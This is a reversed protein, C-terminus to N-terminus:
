VALFVMVAVKSGTSPPVRTFHEELNAESQFFMVKIPQASANTRTPKHTHIAVSKLANITVRSGLKQLQSTVAPLLKSTATARAKTLKVQPKVNKRDTIMSSSATM